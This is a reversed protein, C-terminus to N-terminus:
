DIGFKEWADTFDRLRHRVFDCDTTAVRFASCTGGTGSIEFDVAYAAIPMQGSEVIIWYRLIKYQDKQQIVEYSKGFTKEIELFSLGVMPVAEYGIVKHAVFLDDPVEYTTKRRQRDVTLIGSGGQVFLTVRRLASFCKSKLPHPNIWGNVLSRNRSQGGNEYTVSWAGDSLHMTVNHWKAPKKKSTSLGRDVILDPLGCQAFVDSLRQGLVEEAGPLSHVQDMTMACVIGMEVCLGAIMLLRAVRPMMFRM